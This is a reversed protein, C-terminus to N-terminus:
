HVKPGKLLDSRAISEITAQVIEGDRGLALPIEVGAHGLSWVKRFMDALSDIPKGAVALVIDGVQIDAQDAPGDQTLAAVVVRDEVETGFLGMWPRSKRNPKGLTVMEDYIPALLDIPVIMNGDLGKDESASQQIFLSGVGLLEGNRGILGTGGWNPHAPSTFIAQDLLYEWYGAFERVTIVEASISGSRGGFGAVVVSDGERVDASSGVPIAEVDLRGLSQILGFGTEQDYGLVHGPVANGSHDTIWITEAETILYGITLIVGEPRIVIGNGGRETGLISATHADDPIHSRVSVMAAYVKGLDFSYDKQLPPNATTEAM